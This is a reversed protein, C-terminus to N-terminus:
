VSTFHGADPSGPPPPAERDGIVSSWGQAGWGGVGSGLDGRRLDGGGGERRGGAGPLARRGSLALPQRSAPTAMAVTLNGGGSITPPFPSAAGSPSSFRRRGAVDRCLGPGPPKALKPWGLGPGSEASRLRTGRPATAELAPPPPSRQLRLLGAQRSVGGLGWRMAGTGGPEARPAELTPVWAPAPQRRSGQQPAQGGPERPGLEGPGRRARLM